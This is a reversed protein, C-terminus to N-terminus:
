YMGVVSLFDDASVSSVGLLRIGMDELADGNVDALLLIGEDTQEYWLANAAASTGSFTFGNNGAVQSNADINHLDILDGDASSFDTIVDPNELSSDASEIFEFVDAGAGGTLIDYGLGGNLQDDGTGGDLRDNGDGGGMVDIGALGLLTDAASTGLVINNLANGTNGTIFSLTISEPNDPDTYNVGRFSEIFGAKTYFNTITTTQSAENFHPNLVSYNDDTYYAYTKLVLDNGSREFSLRNAGNFDEWELTDTGGTDLIIDNGGLLEELHYVDNGLGGYLTDNGLGGYLTNAGANGTLVNAADNGTLNINVKGTLTANEINAYSSLDISLLSSTVTDTGENESEIIVDNLSDIVFTDDGTGGVMMDAGLAGDIRDNGSSGILTNSLSNGILTANATGIYTLNEIASLKALSTTAVSSRVEDTGEGAKEIISDKLDDIVYVDDGLGGTLIDAGLGGDLYDDGDGGILKDQGAAGFLSNDLANGTIVNNGANGTGETAAGFLTLNELGTGLTWNAYAKVLDIGASDEISDLTSNIIYTDNGAGGILLDDGEGGDLVNAASNGRLTNDNANGTLSFAKTGALTANEVNSAWSLDYSLATVITDNGAGGDVVPYLDFLTVQDDGDGGNIFLYGGGGKAKITDNGAGTNLSWIEGPATPLTVDLTDDGSWFGSTELISDALNGGNYNVLGTAEIVSGDYFKENLGTLTGSISTNVDASNSSLTGSLSLNGTLTSYKLFKSGTVSLSNLSGSILPSSGSYTLGGKFEFGVTGFTNDVDTLTQIKYGTISSNTSYSPWYSISSGTSYYTYNLSGTITEKVLGPVTFEKSTAVASGYYGYGPSISGTFKLTSGGSFKFTATNGATSWSSAWSYNEELTQNLSVIQDFVGGVGLLGSSDTALQSLQTAVNQTLSIKVNAM